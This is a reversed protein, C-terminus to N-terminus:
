SSGQTTTTTSSKRTRVVKNRLAREKLENERRELESQDPQQTTPVQSILLWLLSSCGLISSVFPRGVTKRDEDDGKGKRREVDAQGRIRLEPEKGKEPKRGNEVDM